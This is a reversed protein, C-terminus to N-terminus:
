ENSKDYKLCCNGMADFIDNMKGPADNSDINIDFGKISEWINKFVFCIPRNKCSYCSRKM